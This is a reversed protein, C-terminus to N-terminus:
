FRLQQLSPAKRFVLLQFEPKSEFKGFTNGSPIITSKSFFVYIFDTQATHEFPNKTPTVPNSGAADVDWVDRAVLQAM